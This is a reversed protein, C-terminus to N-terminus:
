PQLVIHATGVMLDTNLSNPDRNVMDAPHGPKVDGMNFKITKIEVM